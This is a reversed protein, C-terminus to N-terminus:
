GILFWSVKDDYPLFPAQSLQHSRPQWTSFTPSCKTPLPTGIQSWSAPSYTSYLFQLCVIKIVWAFPIGEQVLLIGKSQYKPNFPVKKFIVTLLNWSIQEKNQHSGEREKSWKDEWLQKNINKSWSNDGSFVALFCVRPWQSSLRAKRLYGTLLGFDLFSGEWFSRLHNYSLDSKCVVTSSKLKGTESM